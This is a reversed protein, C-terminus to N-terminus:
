VIGKFHTESDANKVGSEMVCRENEIELDGSCGKMGFVFEFFDEVGGWGVGDVLPPSMQTCWISVLKAVSAIKTLVVCPLNM